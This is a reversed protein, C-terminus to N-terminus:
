CGACPEDHYHGGCHPTASATFPATVVLFAAMMMMLAKKM